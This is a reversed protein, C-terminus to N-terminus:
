NRTRLEKKGGHRAEDGHTEDKRNYLIAHKARAVGGLCRNFFYVV